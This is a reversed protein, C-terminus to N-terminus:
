LYYVLMSLVQVVAHEIEEEFLDDIDSAVGAARRTLWVHAEAITADEQSM